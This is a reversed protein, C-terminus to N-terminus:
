KRKVLTFLDLIEVKRKISPSGFSYFQKPQEDLVQQIGMGILRFSFITLIFGICPGVLIWQDLMLERYSLGILGSWENSLSLSIKITSGIGDSSTYEKARGILFQFIGLHVLLLLTQVTQQALLIFLRPRMYPLIHKRIIWRKRAGISKACLIFENKSYENVETAIVNTLPVVAVFILIFVQNLVVSFDSVTNDINISLFFIMTLIVTPIFRFARIFPGVLMKWKYLYLSYIIGCLTSIIVRLFSVILAILITYKSGDIVKWFIDEGYRDVGLIFNTSPSYPPVDLLHHDKDYIRNPPNSISDSLYLTYISSLFLLVVIFLIGILFNKNLFIKKV